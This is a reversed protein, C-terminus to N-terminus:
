QHVLPQKLVHQLIGELQRKPAENVDGTTQLSKYKSVSHATTPCLKIAHQQASFAADQLGKIAALLGDNTM